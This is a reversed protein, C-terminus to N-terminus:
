SERSNTPGDQSDLSKLLPQEKHRLFWEEFYRRSVYSIATAAVCVVVARLWLRAWLGAPLRTAFPIRRIIGDYAFMVMLHFLYLGYSIYGFFMLLPRRVLAQWRGSAALMFIVLLSGFGLNWPVYQCAEGLATKRSLIGFPAGLLIIAVALSLLALSLQAAKRRSWNPERHLVAIIAGLALGDLNNWTYFGYWSVITNARDAHLHYLLRSVPCLVLIAVLLALLLRPAVRKVAIPWILYFHEEVGLSWLV